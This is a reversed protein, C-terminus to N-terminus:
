RRRIQIEPRYMVRVLIDGRGGRPKPLGEGTLRIIEGRAVKAPIRVRLRIGGLGQVLEDGGSAARKASIKLDCKLDSGRVKFQFSPFPRLRVILYGGADRRVRLKTGPATEPPIELDYTEPGNPNGPDNIRVERSTGRVFEELKLHLDETVNIATSSKATKRSQKEATAVDRDYAQRKEPDSLVEYALNLAQTRAVCDSSGDNLDPHFQKALLRYADRIQDASCKRDLGLTAYHNPLTRQL